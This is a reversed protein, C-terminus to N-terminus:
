CGRGEETDYKKAESAMSESLSESHEFLEEQIDDSVVVVGSLEAAVDVMALPIELYATAIGTKTSIDIKVGQIWDITKGTAIDTVVTGHSTGDQCEIRISKNENM